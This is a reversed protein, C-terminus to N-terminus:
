YLIDENDTVFGLEYADKGKDLCEQIIAITEEESITRAIQFSPFGDGFKKAYEIMLADIKLM